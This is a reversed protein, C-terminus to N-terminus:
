LMTNAVLTKKKLYYLFFVIISKVIISVHFTFQFQIWQDLILDLCYNVLNLSLVYGLQTEKKVVSNVGQFKVLTIKNFNNNTNSSSELHINSSSGM